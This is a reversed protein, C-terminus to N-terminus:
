EKPLSGSCWAIYDALYERLAAEDIGMQALSRDIMYDHRVRPTHERPVHPPLEDEDLCERYVKLMTGELDRVYDSFRLVCRRDTGQETFWQQELICYDSETKAFTEALWAWPSPGLVRDLPNTRVHNVASQLRRTPERIMALFRADAYRQDLLHGVCLFHGKFFFRRPNGNPAPGAFALTKRGISDVLEMFDQEWIVRNHPAIHAFGVDDVMAEPGLLPALHNLHSLYLGGEFTDTRFVDLEHRELLEPPMRRRILQQVRDPSVIRGITRSALVWLWVYPYLIQLLSPAVLRPDDELYRALQTSGSRGASIEILPSVVPNDKLANRFVVEDVMWALGWVPVLTGKRMVSVTLWVRRLIGCGPHGPSVSWVLRFYRVFQSLPPVNPPRGGRILVGVFYIPWFMLTGVALLIVAPARLLLLLLMVLAPQPGRPPEGPLHEPVRSSSLLRDSGNTWNSPEKSTM